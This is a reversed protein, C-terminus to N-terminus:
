PCRLPCYYWNYYRFNVKTIKHNM